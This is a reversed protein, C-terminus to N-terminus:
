FHRFYLDTSQYAHLTRLAHRYYLIGEQLLVAAIGTLPSAKRGVIVTTKRMRFLASATGYTKWVTLALVVTDFLLPLWASAAAVRGPQNFVM